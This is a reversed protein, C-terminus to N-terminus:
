LVLFCLKKIGVHIFDFFTKLLINSSSINSVPLM